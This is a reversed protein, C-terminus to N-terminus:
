SKLERRIFVPVLGNDTYSIYELGFYVKYTIKVADVAMVLSDFETIVDEIEEEDDSTSKDLYFRVEVGESFVAVVARFSPSISGLLAQVL